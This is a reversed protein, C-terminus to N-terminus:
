TAAIHRCVAAVGHEGNGSSNSNSNSKSKGNGNSKGKGKGKGNSRLYSRVETRDDRCWFFEPKLGRSM